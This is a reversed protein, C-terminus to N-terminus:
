TMDQLQSYDSYILRGNSHLDDLASRIDYLKNEAELLEEMREPTVTYFAVVNHALVCTISNEQANKTPHLKFKALGINPILQM